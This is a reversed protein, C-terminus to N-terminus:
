IRTVSSFSPGLSAIRAQLHRQATRIAYEVLERPVPDSSFDRVSRRRNMAEYFSQAQALQEEPAFRQTEYRIMPATMPNM